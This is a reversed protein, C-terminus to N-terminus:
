LIMRIKEAIIRGLKSHESAELHIGDVSSSVIDDGTDIFPCGHIEAVRRYELSFGESKEIAGIFADAMDALPVLKPPILLLISPKEERFVWPRSEILNLLTEISNAIDYASVSFRNKLDNTGLMLVVLDLPNHTELCVPLHAKGSKDGEIPDDWVTTRGNLGEEIIKYGEGLEKELVGTWRVDEPFRIKNIPDWGWTNSDGFCMIRKM